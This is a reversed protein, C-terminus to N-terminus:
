VPASSNVAFIIVAPSRMAAGFTALRLRLIRMTDASTSGPLHVAADAQRHAVAVGRGPAVARQARHEVGRQVAQRIWWTAYTSFKYGRRYEFKDVAKMLGINGEQILDLFQLGRNTYKKAISIVLRLNAEIMEKKADRSAAEGENMRRNIEKLEALPVVVQAQIDALKTQLEQIPPVNRAIVAGGLEEFTITAPEAIKLLPVQLLERM